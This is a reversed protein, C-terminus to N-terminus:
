PNTAVLGIVEGACVQDLAVDGGPGPIDSLRLREVGRCRCLRIQPTPTRDHRADGDIESLCCNSTSVEDACCANGLTVDQRYNGCSLAAFPDVFAIPCFCTAVAALAVCSFVLLVPAIARPIPPRKGCASACAFMLPALSM